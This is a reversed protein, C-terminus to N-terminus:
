CHGAHHSVDIVGISQSASTTPNSSGLLELGAQAVYPSGMEVFIHAPHPTCAQPGLETSIPPNSPGLLNLSCHAMIVGAKTVSCFETELLFFFLLTVLFHSVILTTKYQNEVLDDNLRHFPIYM